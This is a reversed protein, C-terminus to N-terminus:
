IIIIIILLLTAKLFFNKCWKYILGLCNVPIVLCSLLGRGVEIVQRRRGDEGLAASCWLLPQQASRLGSEWTVTCMRHQKVCLPRHLNLLKQAFCTFIVISDLCIGSFYTSSLGFLTTKLHTAARSHSVPDSINEMAYM